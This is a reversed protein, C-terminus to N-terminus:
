PSRVNMIIKRHYSANLSHAPLGRQLMLSGIAEDDHAHGVDVTTM